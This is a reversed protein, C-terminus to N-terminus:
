KIFYESTLINEKTEAILKSFDHVRNQIMTFEEMVDIKKIRYVYLRKSEPFDACFSVFDLWDRDTGKLTGIYQWKYAPDFSKRKINAYHVSAIVCKIEIVGSGPLGDPSCGMQDDCFFGGNLVDTFTESEYLQRAIPEQEHGREMHSNSFSSPIPEGTIQEIALDVAYKKAPDGFAQGYKAMICGLKSSTIKGARLQYWEDQNQEIDHYKM